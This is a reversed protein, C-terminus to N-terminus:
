HHHKFSHHIREAETDEDGMEEKTCQPRIQQSGMGSVEASRQRGPCPKQAALSGTLRAWKKRCSRKSKADVDVGEGKNEEKGRISEEREGTQGGKGMRDRLSIDINRQTQGEQWIDQSFVSM